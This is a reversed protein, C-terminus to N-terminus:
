DTLHRKVTVCLFRESRPEEWNGELNSIWPTIYVLDVPGDGVVQYAVHTGDSFQVQSQGDGTWEGVQRKVRGKIEDGKGELRDKNM